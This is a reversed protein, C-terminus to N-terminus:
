SITISPDDGTFTVATSEACGRSSSQQSLNASVYFVHWYVTTSSSVKATTQNGTDATQPSAGSIGASTSFLLGTASPTYPSTETDAQCNVLSDYLRFYVTGSLNGGGTAAIKAKDQPLVFQRTTPTTPVSTVTFCETTSHDTAAKYQSGEAPAYEGRWCWTGISSADSPPTFSGSTATAKTADNPDPVLTEGSADGNSSGGTVQTSGTPAVGTCEGNTDLQTPSCVFFKVKGTPTGAGTGTVVASDTVSGGLVISTKSPTTTIGSECPQFEGIIFDKLTAFPSTAATNGASARSEDVVTAFCENALEPFASLNLGAEYLEGSRFTTKGAKDLFPWPSTTANDANVIGCFPDGTMPTTAGCEATGGAPTGGLSQLHTTIDGGSDVWKYVDIKATTGGVSFDSVILVDGVKHFSGDTADSSFTGDTNLGIANQLFWVGQQADGNNAVRTSGFYVVSCTTTLSPCNASVPGNYRAAFGQQLNDKAPLGGTDTKWHWSSIDSPDKSGGGTFVTCNDGGACEPTVTRDDSWSVGSAGTTNSTTSCDAGLVQHCVNDWDDGPVNAENTANGDLEFFGTDHVAFAPVAAYVALVVFSVVIAFIQSRGRPWLRSPAFRFLQTM